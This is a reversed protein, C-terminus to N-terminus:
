KRSKRSTALLTAYKHALRNTFGRKPKITRPIGFNKAAKAVLFAKENTSLEENQLIRTETRLFLNADERNMKYKKIEQPTRPRRAFIVAGVILALVTAVFIVEQM